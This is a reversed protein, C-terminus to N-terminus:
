DRTEGHEATAFIIIAAENRHCKCYKAIQLKIIIHLDTPYFFTHFIACIIKGHM